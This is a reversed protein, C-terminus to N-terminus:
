RKRQMIFRSRPLTRNNNIAQDGPDVRLSGDPNHTDKNYPSDPETMMTPPGTDDDKQGQQQLTAADDSEEDEPTRENVEPEGIHSLRSLLLAARTMM